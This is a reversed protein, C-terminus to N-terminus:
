MIKNFPEAMNDYIAGLNDTVCESQCMGTEHDKDMVYFNCKNLIQHLDSYYEIARVFYPSHSNLYICIDFHLYLLVFLHALKLQWEPHLNTEPEDVILCTQKLFIGNETLRQLILFIKMGSAINSMEIDSDCWRDHYVFRNSEFSLEGELVEKFLEKLQLKQESIKQYEEATLHSPDLDEMMLRSLRSNAHSISRYREASYLQQYTGVSDMLDPTTIYIPWIFVASYPIASDDIQNNCIRIRIDTDLDTYRISGERNNKLCNAQKLFVDELVTQMVFKCYYSVDKEAINFYDRYLSRVRDTIKSEDWYEEPFSNRIYKIMEDAFYKECAQSTEQKKCQDYIAETKGILESIQLYPIYHRKWNQICRRLSRTKQVRANDMLDCTMELVAYLSKSVTSKGTSNAGAVVTIGHMQIEAKDVRGINNIKLEM